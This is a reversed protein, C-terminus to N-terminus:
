VNGKAENVFAAALTPVFVSHKNEQSRQSEHVTRPALFGFTSRYLLATRTLLGSTAQGEGRVLEGAM